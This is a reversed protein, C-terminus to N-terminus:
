HILVELVFKSGFYALALLLFAGLTWKLARKGRWGYRWHGHLQIAFLMWAMVSLLTKHVLHQAFMDDLFFFGTILSFTLLVFGTGLMMTAMTEMLKLPPLAKIFGGPKHDHLFQSQIATFIAQIAALGLVGYAAVSLFIHVQIKPDVTSEAPQYIGSSFVTLAAIPLVVIGLNETPRNISITVIFVVMLWCILSLANILNLDLVQDGFIRHMVLWAHIISGSATLLLILGKKQTKKGHLIPKLIFTAAIIYLIAAVTGLIEPSIM